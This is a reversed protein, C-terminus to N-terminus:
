YKGWGHRINAGGMYYKGWGYLIQGVWIINAEGIYYIGLYLVFALPSPWGERPLKHRGSGTKGGVGMQGLEDIM